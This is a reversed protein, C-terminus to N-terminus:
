FHSHDSRAHYECIVSPGVKTTLENVGVQLYVHTYPVYDMAEKIADTLRGINTGPDVLFHFKDTYDRRLCYELDKGRSDFALLHFM